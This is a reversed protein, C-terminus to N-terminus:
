LMMWATVAENRESAGVAKSKGMQCNMKCHTVDLFVFPLIAFFRIFGLSRPICIKLPLCAQCNPLLFHLLGFIAASPPPRSGLLGAVWGNLQKSLVSPSYFNFYLAIETNVSTDASCYPLSPYCLVFHLQLLWFYICIVLKTLCGSICTGHGLWSAVSVSLRLSQSVCLRPSRCLLCVTVACLNLPSPAAPEDDDKDEHRTRMM